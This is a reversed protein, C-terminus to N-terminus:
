TPVPAEPPASPPTTSPPAAAPPTMAAEYSTAATRAPPPLPALPGTTRPPVNPHALRTTLRTWRPDRERPARGGGAFDTWRTPPESVSPARELLDLKGAQRDALLGAITSMVRLRPPLGGLSRARQELDRVRRLVEPSPAHHGIARVIPLAGLATQRSLEAQHRLFPDDSARLAEWAQLNSDCVQLVPPGNVKRLKEHALDFYPKLEGQEFNAMEFADEKWLHFHTHNFGERLRKESVMQKYLRTGPCPTLPGIQYFTPRLAVFADIDKVINEPTHFDFGLITSGITEIGYRALEAFLEPPTRNGDRKQYGTKSKRGETFASEVGIWIGGVGCARLEEGTFPSLARVSGFTHYRIGWTKRDARILRGLERVYEPDLFIDEDFIAVNLRDTGLRRMYNKMFDYTQAPEAVYIKKHWFFASTNCFECASPCGLAVLIAPLRAEFSRMGPLEFTAFPLHYQTIPRDVPENGLLRRMFRVGEERCFHHANARIYDGWGWRDGPLKEALAGVGYGGIVIESRPSHTRIAHVMRAVREVRPKHAVAWGLGIVGGWDQVVLTIGDLGLTDIFLGLRAIHARMSYDGRPPKDSFGFGLHDVAVCRRRDRLAAIQARYLFSWTPNGHLFLIPEGSGEDVYHLRQGFVTQFKSEFPFSEAKM